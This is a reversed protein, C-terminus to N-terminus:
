YTFLHKMMSKNLAKTADIVAQTKEKAEQVASLVAAIKQQEPLPPLPIKFDSLDKFSLSRRVSGRSMSVRKIESMYLSSKLLKFLFESLLFDTKSVKFVVYAPSVLGIKEKFLGLSGVNIRYPNYAFFDQRVIKYKNLEESYVRKDFFVDSLVFGRINSVSFVKLNLCAKNKEKIEEIVDGLRVVEWEEPLPGLETMKYGEPLINNSTSNM